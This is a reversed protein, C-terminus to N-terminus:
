LKEPKQLKTNLIQSKRRPIQHKTWRDIPLWFDCIHIVKAVGEALQQM